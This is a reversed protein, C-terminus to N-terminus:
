SFKCSREQLACWAERKLEQDRSECTKTVHGEPKPWTVWQNQDRSGYTKTVHGVPKPWKVWQNQDRSGYTKTVQDVPKPWTVWQNQRTKPVSTEHCCRSHGPPSAVGPSLLQRSNEPAACRTLSPSTRSRPAPSTLRTECWPVSCQPCTGDEPDTGTITM